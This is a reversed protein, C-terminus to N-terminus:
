LGSGVMERAFWDIAPLPDTAIARPDRPALGALDPLNPPPPVAANVPWFSSDMDDAALAARQGAPSCAFAIFALAAHRVAPELHRPMVILSPMLVAPAPIVTELSSDVRSAIHFAVASRVLALQIAGSRLAAVTDSTSAYIHLGAGRLAKVFGRGAPWGQAALLSALGGWAADDLGPDAMGALGRRAPALLDQWHAPAAFPASKPMLLVGGLELGTPIASGDPPILAAARPSLGAPVPLHRALLGRADLAIATPTGTFWALAWRPHSGEHAIRDALGTPPPRRIRVAIGTQATFARAVAPADDLRSYLTLTAARAAFPAGLLCALVLPVLRRM